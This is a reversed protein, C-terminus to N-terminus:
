RLVCQQQRRRRWEARAMELRIQWPDPTPSVRRPEALKRMEKGIQILEDNSMARLRERLEQSQVESSEFSIIGKLHSM